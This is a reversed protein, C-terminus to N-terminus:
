ALRLGYKDSQFWTSVLDRLVSEAASKAEFSSKASGEIYLKIKPETGSGRVTFVVDGELECTIMQASKDVPLLPIHDSTASDYGITLDRWRLIRRSGVHTPSSARVHEFVTNTIDPSPSVLYTNAEEYYGYKKYLDQLKTWPTRGEAKWHQCAVLFVAAAAIGDKDFVVNPFMYGIAEEYAFLPTIGKAPLDQAVNGLWKFGTLSEVFQFSGEVTAMRALMRSSVASALMAVKADDKDKNKSSYQDLVHSALLVGLQNGTFQRWQGDVKEAVAFRDADPDNALILSAEQQDACEIALDLAGKEEPNPFRVTPFSADPEAQAHVIKMETELGLQKVVQTMFPLGVGHMPTYAFPISSTGSSSSSGATMNVAEFYSDEVMSLADVVRTNQFTIGSVDWSRPELNREIAEAIGRDHPPNIQSSNEWYVKYGNDNAPNHSATIMVGASAHCRCVAFPVMPTHVLGLYYVKFGRNLFAAATLNAFYKSNKRADRGIVVGREEAASINELIYAALGQSAQIVTVANMRSFGAEMAARLGATGFAIRKRLRKELETINNSEVLDSIEAKTSPNQDIRLWQQALEHISPEKDTANSM